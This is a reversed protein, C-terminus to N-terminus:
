RKFYNHEAVFVTLSVHVEIGLKHAAKIFYGLYDFNGINAGHWEEM